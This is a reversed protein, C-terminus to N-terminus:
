YVRNHKRGTVERVIGLQQEMAELAQGITAPPKSSRPSTRYRIRSYHVSPKNNVFIATDAGSERIYMEDAELL